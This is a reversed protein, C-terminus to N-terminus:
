NSHREKLEDIFEIEMGLRTQRERVLRGTQPATLSVRGQISM